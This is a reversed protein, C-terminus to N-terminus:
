PLVEEAPVYREISLQPRMKARVVASEGTSLHVTTTWESPGAAPWETDAYHKELCKVAIHQPLYINDSSIGSDHWEPLDGLRYQINM